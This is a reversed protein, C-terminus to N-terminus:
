KESNTEVPIFWACLAGFVGTSICVEWFHALSVRAPMLPNPFALQVTPLLGLALASLFILEVRKGSFGKFLPVLCLIWLIGRFYQFVPLEPKSMLTHLWQGIFTRLETSGEYFMRLEHSQWAVYYGFWLYLAFYVVALWASRKIAQDTDIAFNASPASKRSFRGAILIVLLVFIVSTVLGRLILRYLEFNGQLLPFADLFYGTEVQTQFVQAGFSLALLQGFLALGKFSSRRAAWLLITGNVLGNLLMALPMSLFGAEPAKETIFQPLPSLLNSIMLSVVFAISAGLWQFLVGFSSKLTMQKEKHNSAKM